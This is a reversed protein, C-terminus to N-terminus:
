DCRLTRVPDIGVARRSPAFAAAMAAALVVAASGAYAAFDYPKIVELEHAFVPAVILALGAGLSTGIVALRASQRAIMGAVDWAGAGLAVRIGIEKTRQSVVYSMVGYIGSVTMLLAVGGLFGAIWFTVQFPYVQLALIEDMPNIFDSLSPAVQDLAAAIRDRGSATDSGLRVLISSNSAAGAHTPFYICIEDASNGLYGPRSDKVIGIVRASSFAPARDLYPDKRAAAPLSLTEGIPDRNPWLRRASSESVVVVPAEANCDAPTFIRGRVLAIRFISFYGESVFNYGTPISEGSGSPIVAIHRLSGYLPAHWVAAVAEADPAAALRSAIKAHYRGLAEVDWGGHTELGTKRDMVRRESRLVIATCILLLACTAVQVVVLLSRLRAPRYDSSFDGRNAEVLRSRTTQIAPALGFLLATVGSAGLIFGFVRWDPALSEIALIKGYTPPLTAFLLRKAGEITMESILLGAAAAPVALLVSETLLQRILRARGAGLSVRIAVERQRSLARALMMNSVNACAILLVLGFAVFLPIFAAITDRTIPVSTARPMLTIGLADRAFGRVWPLLESKAAEPAIGPELRGILGLWPRDPIDTVSGISALPIWFGVPFSETGTFAPHAIGVVRFPQGRLYVKRGLITPNAGFQNNWAKHSLVLAGSDEPLLPRGQVTGVGLMTFYNPSVALGFLARGDVEAAFGTRALVDSFPSKLRQLDRFQEASFRNGGKATYWTFEYLRYPDRVAYPRLAYANFVTFMTTNLGLGLGIAGIVGVAFGPSKRLGRLAYRVDQTWSDLWALGWVARSDELALAESGFAAGAMERHFRIEEALDREFERRKTWLRLRNFIRM